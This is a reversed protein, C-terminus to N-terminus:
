SKTEDLVISKKIEKELTSLAEKSKLDNGNFAEKSIHAPAEKALEPAKEVNGNHIAGLSEKVIVRVEQNDGNSIRSFFKQFWKTRKGKNEMRSTGIEVEKEDIDELSDLIEKSFEVAEKESFGNALFQEKIFDETSQTEDKSEFKEILEVLTNNKEM